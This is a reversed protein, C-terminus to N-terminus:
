EPPPAPTARRADARAIVEERPLTPFLRAGELGELMERARAEFAPDVWPDMPEIWRRSASRERYRARYERARARFAPDADRAAASWRRVALDQEVRVADAVLEVRAARTEDRGAADEIRRLRELRRELIRLRSMWRAAEAEPERGDLAERAEGAIADLVERPSGRPDRALRAIRALTLELVERRTM